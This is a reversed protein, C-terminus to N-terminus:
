DPFYSGSRLKPIAVDVTGARTDWERARYGNGTNTREASRAGDEAGCVADVEAGMLAQVFTIIMQRLLDPSAQGLQESLWGSLDISSPATM